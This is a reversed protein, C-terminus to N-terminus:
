GGSGGSEAAVSVGTPTRVVRIVVFEAPPPPNLVILCTLRGVAVDSPPNVSADCTVTYAQDRSAGNLMGNRWLQDLLSRVVRDVEAWLVPGNPEFVTWTTESVIQEEIACVLRRVNLYRWEPLSVTLTRDGLVRVGRQVRIANVNGDNLDGHAIDDVAFVTDVPLEVLEGAPPKHVGVTTDVRACVGAIHGSPPVATVDANASLPDVVLLWPYYLAGFASDLHHNVPWALADAPSTLPDQPSDLLAVRDHHRECHTIMAQQLDAVQQPTFQPRGSPPVPPPAPVTAPLCLNGCQPPVPPVQQGVTVPRAWLDPITVIAVEDIVDLTSLGWNQEDDFFHNATLTDLGDAGGALVLWGTAALPTAAPPTPPPPPPAPVQDSATVLRSGTNPDNLLLLPDRGPADKRPALNRWVETVTGYRLSLTFMGGGADDVKYQVQDGWTGPSTATLSLALKKDVDLLPAQAATAKDPDAVRVVWCTTGGNAYFGEVAYALYATPLHEGFVGRFQDWGEVRVPRHLPGRQAIGVFSAIDTRLLTPSQPAADLWEFRVGPTRYSRLPFAAPGTV